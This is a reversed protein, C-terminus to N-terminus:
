DARLVLATLDDSFARDGAWRDVAALLGQLVTAANGGSLGRLAEGVQEDGFERDDPSWAETLGDTVMAVVDGRELCVDGMEYSGEALLGLAPGGGDLRSVAGGRSVRYPPVHGANVYTLRRSAPDLEAYFLTVFRSAQSRAFLFRNLHGILRAPEATGALAHVFAHVSAMLLSAPTGKGSVDAIVLALRGGELAIWDYSDGGVEFCPRSLAAVDFGPVEPPRPPFLSQQIGRAIQLERDQRLKEERVRQLGANELAVLAQRALAQAMDRDEEAFPRGSAREGVALLGEVRSGTSLPVALSMRARELVRRLPGEPLEIVPLPGELADLARRAEEAPIVASERGLGRCHALSLGRPGDLYLACRSVLFHGMVSTVVLDLLAEETSGEALDRSLDFLNHLEFATLSLKRHVRELEEHLLISEIPAGAGAAVQRLFAREEDGYPGEERPGLGLVAVLRDRRHIPVLVALGHCDHAEDGPGLDRTEDGSGAHALTAPAAAPLGRSARLTLRGDEGRVFFAARAMQLQRALVALAEDLARELAVPASLVATLDLLERERMPMPM